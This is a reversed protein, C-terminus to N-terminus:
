KMSVPFGPKQTIPLDAAEDATLAALVTAACGAFNQSRPPPHDFLGNM